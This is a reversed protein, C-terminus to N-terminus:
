PLNGDSTMRAPRQWRAAPHKASEYYGGNPGPWGLAQVATANEFAGLAAGLALTAAGQFGSGVFILDTLRDIAKLQDALSAKYFYTADFSIRVAWDLAAAILNSNTGAIGYYPDYFVDLVCASYAGASRDGGSKLPYGDGSFLQKGDDGPYIANLYHMITRHEWGNISPWGDGNIPTKNADVSSPFGLTIALTASSTAAIAGKLFHRRSVVSRDQERQSQM